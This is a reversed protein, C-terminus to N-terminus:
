KLIFPRVKQRKCTAVAAMVFSSGYTYKEFDENPCNIRAELWLLKLSLMKYWDWTPLKM